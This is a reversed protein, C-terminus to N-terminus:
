SGVEKMLRQRIAIHCGAYAALTVGITMVVWMTVSRGVPFLMENFGKLMWYTPIWGMWGPQFAPALFSVIPLMSAVLVAMGALLWQSMTKFFAALIMGIFTFLLSGASIMVWFLLPMTPWVGMVLLLLLAYVLSVLLFVLSKSLIYTSTGLPTVRLARLTGDGQEELILVAGMMFGMMAVDLALLLPVYTKSGQPGTQEGRMFSIAGPQNFLEMAAPDNFQRTLFQAMLAESYSNMLGHHYVKVEPDGRAGTILLAITNPNEELATLLSVEDSFFELLGGEARRLAEGYLEGETLDAVLLAEQIPPEEPVLLALVGVMVVMVAFLFLILANRVSIKLDQMFLSAFRKM